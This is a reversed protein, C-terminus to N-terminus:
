WYNGCSCFGDKFHHFRNSDRVVIERQAIKSIFKTATHCDGCVRLNKVIRVVSGPLTSILGFAIALKESHHYLIYEKQEEEVDHLVFNTDPVYGAEKMQENLRELMAYIKESQSHSRDGVFFAHVRKKVEIWSCGPEKKIGKDKMMKRVKLADGWRGGAAYINALVVYNGSNQPDLQFLREAALKGLEMNVHIRCAGLLAGWISANPECPVNNIFEHADDLRGARGLIDVVCAYHEARPTICYNQSMSDFYQWAEDVLGSHSCASLVALFTVDNPKMGAQQMQEFLQLVDKGHGHKGYGTIMTTWSVVNREYMKDFVQRAEDLIGSKAYMDILANGLVIYPKIENKIVHAHIRKGQELAALGACASLVSSFTVHDLKMGALRMEYYLSLAEEDHGHQQQTYGTIMATCSILDRESMLDFVLRADEISRCKAYMDILAGGVISHSEFGMRIICTHAQKAKNLEGSGACARLISGFTFQDPKLGEWQMQYFLILAAKCHGQVSYGAIMANWSVVDRQSMKDFVQRAHEIDGTKSYMDTLASEVFLHSQFRTKAISAHIQKGGEQAGIAACARLVSAFTFQNPKTGARQMQYFLILAEEGHGHQAYGSIIATWTVVNRQSAEDFLLRAYVLSGCKAYLIILKTSLYMDPQFRAKIMHEHVQKGEAIAKADICAQLLSSYTSSDPHIGQHDMVHLIDFAEKLQGQECLMRLDGSDCCFKHNSKLEEESQEAHVPMRMAIAITEKSLALAATAFSSASQNQSYHVLYPFRSIIDNRHIRQTQVLLRVLNRAM